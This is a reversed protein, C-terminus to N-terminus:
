LIRKTIQYLRGYKSDFQLDRYDINEIEVAYVPYEGDGVDGWLALVPELVHEDGNKFIQKINELCSQYLSYAEDKGIPVTDEIMKGGHYYQVAYKIESM